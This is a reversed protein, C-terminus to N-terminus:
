NNNQNYYNSYNNQEYNNSVNYEPYGEYLFEEENNNSKYIDQKTEKQKEKGKKNCIYAIFILTMLLVGCGFGMLFNIARNEDDNLCVTDDKTEKKVVDLTFM